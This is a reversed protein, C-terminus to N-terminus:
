EGRTRRNGSTPLLRDRWRIGIPGPIMLLDGETKGGPTVPVGNDYSKSRNPDGKCYYITNVMRSQTPLIAPRCQSIRTADSTACYNFKTASDVSAAMRCRIIWRGIVTSSALRLSEMASAFCGMNEHLTQCFGSSVTSSTRADKATMIFIFKWTPSEAACWKHSHNSFSRIINRKRIFFLTNHRIVTVTQSAGVACDGAVGRAVSGRSSSSNALGAPAM